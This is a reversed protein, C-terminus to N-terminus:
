QAAPYDFALLLTRQRSSLNDDSLLFLRWGGGPREVAAVGEFNEAVLPPQLRALITVSGPRGDQGPSIRAVMARFGRLPDYARYVAILDSTGPLHDLGTLSYFLEPPGLEPQLRCEGGGGLPCLWIRGDEAGVAAFPGEPLPLVALAEFGQNDPLEAVPAAFPRPRSAFARWLAEAGPAPYLWIRHEREFSVLFGEAFAALGEADGRRKGELPAGDPDILPRISGHIVGREAGRPPGAGVGYLVMEVQDGQDTVAYAVRGGHPGPVALKLDSLGHLRSSNRATLRVGGAYVLAGVRDQKPERANLPVPTTVIRLSQAAPSPSQPAGHAGVAASLALTLGLAAFKM